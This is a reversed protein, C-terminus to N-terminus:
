DRRVEAVVVPPCAFSAAMQRAEERTLVGTHRAVEPHNCFYFWGLAEGTADHVWYSKAHEVVDLAVSPPTGDHSRYQRYPKWKLPMVALPTERDLRL